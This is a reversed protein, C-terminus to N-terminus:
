LILASCLILKLVKNPPIEVVLQLIFFLSMMMLFSVLELLDGKIDRPVAQYNM